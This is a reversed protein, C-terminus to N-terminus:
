GVKQHTAKQHTAQYDPCDLAEPTLAVSPQVACKLYPSDKFFRCNRCRMQHGHKFPHLEHQAVKWGNTLLFAMMSWFMLFCLPVLFILGDSLFLNDLRGGNSEAQTKSETLTAQHTSPQSSSKFEQVILPKAAYM